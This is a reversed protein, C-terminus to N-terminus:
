HSSLLERIKQKKELTLVKPYEINFRIILDGKNNNINNNNNNSMAVNNEGFIKPMGEGVFRREYNSHIIEFCPIVRTKKKKCEEEGEDYDNLALTPVKLICDTLAECLTINAIHILNNEEDRTYCAHPVEKVIFVLDGATQTHSADGEGHVHICTGSKIGAPVHITIIHTEDVLANLDINFRKRTVQIEKETGYYIEELTLPLDFSEEKMKTSQLSSSSSSSSPDKNANSEDTTSSNTDGNKSQNSTTKHENREKSTSEKRDEKKSQFDVTDYLGMIDFPHKTEKKHEEEGQGKDDDDDDDEEEEEIVDNYKSFFRDFIEKSNYKNTSSTSPSDNHGKEETSNNEEDDDSDDEIMIDDYDYYCNYDDSQKGEEDSNIGSGGATCVLLKLINRRDDKNLGKWGFCNYKLRLDENSLLDYVLTVLQFMQEAYQKNQLSNKDPHYKFCCKRYAQKIQTSTFDYGQSPTPPSSEYTTNATPENISKLGLITYLNPRHTKSTATNINPPFTSSPM